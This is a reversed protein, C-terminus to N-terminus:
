TAPLDDSSLGAPYANHTVGANSASLKAAAEAARALVPMTVDHSALRAIPKGSEVVPFLLIARGKKTKGAVPELYFEYVLKEDFALPRYRELVKTETVVIRDGKKAMVTEGEKDDPMTVPCVDLLEVVFGNWPKLNGEEDEITAPLAVWGLLYGYIPHGKTGPKATRPDVGDYKPYKAALNTLGTPRQFSM